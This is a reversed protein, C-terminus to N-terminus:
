TSMAPRLKETRKATSTLNQKVAHERDRPDTTAKRDRFAEGQKCNNTTASLYNYMIRSPAIATEHCLFLVATLKIFMTTMMM